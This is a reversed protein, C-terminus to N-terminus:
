IYNLAESMRHGSVDEDSVHNSIINYAEFLLADGAQTINNLNNEPDLADKFQPYTMGESYYARIGNVFSVM